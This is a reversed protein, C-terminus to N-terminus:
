AFGSDTQDAEESGPQQALETKKMTIFRCLRNM